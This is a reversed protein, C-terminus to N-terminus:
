RTASPGAPEEIKLFQGAKINKLIQRIGSPWTIEISAIQSEAGLGIHVRKDSSSMFGVSVAVHNYLIRGSATTVKVKAGIPDRPSKRGALALTLWHNGSDATNILIRPSEGLSTVVIDLAGDNNLDAFASGRQFGVRLFDKGMEASVDTLTKGVANEFMTDHQRSKENVDDM